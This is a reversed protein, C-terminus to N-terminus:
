LFENLEQALRQPQDHHLMHGADLTLCRLGSFCAKRARLEPDGDSEALYARYDSASGEVWLTPAEIRRWCAMAEDLRYLVPNVDRHRPDARLRVRGDDQEIGWHRALFAAQEEDLRPNNMRLRRALSRFDAYPRPPSGPQQQDLWKAYLDPAQATDQRRIGFGELTVLRAVHQSRTGAYLCAANGGMSHGVLDVAGDPQYIRLLAELDRLYDPFWYGGTCWASDGFGRWDPAVLYRPADLADALFQWSASVDMWGHLLFLPRHAPDGWTRVHCRVGNLEHVRSRSARRSQM